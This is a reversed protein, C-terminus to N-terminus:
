RPPPPSRAREARSQAAHTCWCWGGRCCVYTWFFMGYYPVAWVNAPWIGAFLVQVGEAKVMRRMCDGLGKYVGPSTTIRGRAIDLPYIATICTCGSLCSAAMLQWGNPNSGGIKKKYYDKCYFAVANQPIIRLMNVGNGAWFGKIGEAKYISRLCDTNSAFRSGDTIMSMRLRELPSVITRSIAAALGGGVANRWGKKQPAKKKASPM